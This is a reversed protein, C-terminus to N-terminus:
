AASLVEHLRDLSIKLARAIRAARSLGPERNRCLIHSLAGPSM